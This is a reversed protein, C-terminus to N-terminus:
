QPPLPCLRDQTQAPFSAQVHTLLILGAGPSLFPPSSVGCLRPGAPGEGRPVGSTLACTLLM